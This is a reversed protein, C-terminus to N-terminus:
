AEKGSEIQTHYIEQYVDCNVMLEEHTGLGVRYGNNMVLIKDASMATGCRQTIIILTQNDKSNKLNARIKAETM